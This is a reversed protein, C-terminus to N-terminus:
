QLERRLRKIEQVLEFKKKPQKEARAQKELREIQKLLKEKREDEIIQEEITNGANVKVDGISMVINEWVTDLNLGTISLTANSVWDSKILKTYYIGLQYEEDFKMLYVINRDIMKSLMTINKDAYEKKKLHVLLVFISDINEGKEINLTRESIENAIYIRSIDNDFSEKQSTSLILKQFIANKPLQKNIETQIPLNLM